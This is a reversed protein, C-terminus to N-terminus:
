GNIYHINWVGHFWSGYSIGHLGVNGENKPTIVWINPTKKFRWKEMPKWTWLYGTKKMEGFAVPQLTPCSNEDRIKKNPSFRHFFMNGLLGLRGNLLIPFKVLDVITKPEPIKIM